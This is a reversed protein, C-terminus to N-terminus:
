EDLPTRGVRSRRQTHDPYRTFSSARAWQPNQVLFSFSSSTRWKHKVLSNPTEKIKLIKHKETEFESHRINTLSMAFNVTMRVYNVANCRVQDRSLANDTIEVSKLATGGERNRLLKRKIRLLLKNIFLSQVKWRCSLETRLM